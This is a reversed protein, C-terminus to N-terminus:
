QLECPPAPENLMMWYIGLKQIAELFQAYDVPKQIFSNAGLNYSRVVDKEEKSSTLVVVPIPLWCM